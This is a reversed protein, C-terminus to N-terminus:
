SPYLLPQTPTFCLRVHCLRSRPPLSAKFTQWFHCSPALLAMVFHYPNRHKKCRERSVVRGRPAPCTLMVTSYLIPFIQLVTIEKRCVLLPLDDDVHIVNNTQKDADM